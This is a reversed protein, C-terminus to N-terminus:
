LYSARLGLRESGTSDAHAPHYPLHNALTNRLPQNTGDILQASASNSTVVEQPLAAFTNTIPYSSM